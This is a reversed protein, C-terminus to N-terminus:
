ATKSEPLPQFTVTFRTGGVRELTVEGHMHGALMQVLQLGLSSSNSLDRNQPFGVGDDQVALCLRGDELSQLSIELTGPQDEPFAHKLANSALENAIIALTVATDVEVAIGNCNVKLQIHEPEIRSSHILHGVLEQVYDAFDVEVFNQTQYLKEHILAISRVRSQADAFKQRTEVDPLYNTQLYLLNSIAQLNNKVRHNVERLLVQKEQLSQKLQEEARTRAKIEAQAEAYLRARDLAQACQGALILLFLREESNFTHDQAFTWSTVGLRHDGVTLPLVVVAHSGTRQRVELLHPYRSAYVAESDIWLPEGTRAVEAVPLAASLPIHQYDIMSEEPYGVARVMELAQGDPTFLLVSGASAELAAIGQEVIVGAVQEPTRAASLAATVTQLRAKREIAQEARRRTKIDRFVLVVGDIGEDEGSRVPAASDDIPIERGDRRILITHNALGVVAGEALVRTVPSEVIQRSKEDIIRFIEALPRGTAEALPWGTLSEAVRNMFTVRGQDDTVVVGDGISALTVLLQDRQERTIEEARRRAENLGTILLAVLLFAFLQVVAPLNLTFTFQPSLYFYRSALTALITALLGPGLGGYWASVAVAAYFLPFVSNGGTATIGVTLGTALGVTLLPILYPWFFLASRTGRRLRSAAPLRDPGKIRGPSIQNM